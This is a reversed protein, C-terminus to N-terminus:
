ADEYQHELLYHIEAYQGATDVTGDSRVTQWVMYLEKNTAYSSNDNFKLKGTHKTLDFYFPVSVNSSAPVMSQSVGTINFLQVTKTQLVTWYDSNVNLVVDLMGGSFGAVTGGSQFFNAFDTASPVASNYNLCKRKCLWMKVYIPCALTNTTANYPKVNIYGRFVSKVCDIINGLRGSQSTNQSPFPLLYQYTPSTVSGAFLLDVNAFQVQTIKNEIQSHLVKKITKVLSSKKKYTRKVYKRPKGAPAKRRYRRPPM